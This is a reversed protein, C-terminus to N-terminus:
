SFDTPAYVRAVEDMYVDLITTYLYVDDTIIDVKMKSKIHRLSSKNDKYRYKLNLDTYYNKLDEFSCLSGTWFEGSGLLDEIIHLYAIGDLKITPDVGVVPNCTGYDFLVKKKRRSVTVADRFKSAMQTTHSNSVTLILEPLTQM